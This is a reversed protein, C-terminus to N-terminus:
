RHVEIELKKAGYWTRRDQRELEAITQRTQQNFRRKCMKKLHFIYANKEWKQCIQL